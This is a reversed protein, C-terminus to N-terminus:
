KNIWHQIFLVVVFAVVMLTICGGGDPKHNSM